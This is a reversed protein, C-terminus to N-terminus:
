VRSTTPLTLHTYSVPDTAIKFALAAFPANDDSERTEVTEDDALVGEIAKVQDPAPLFEIVADLVAQVGKNKFASGGLVPVIENALTRQRIGRKIEEESLEGEELYKEMLEEDADAAAEMLQERLTECEDAIDAPIDGYEFSMGQDAENWLIARGKILDVVGKFDEESGITMQLPVPTCNLREELQSVVNLFDAGTRDMKNVFVMRPVEYKNQRKYM